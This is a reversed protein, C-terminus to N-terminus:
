EKHNGDRTAATPSAKTYPSATSACTAPTAHRTAARTACTSCAGASRFLSCFLVFNALFRCEDVLDLRTTLAKSQWQLINGSRKQVSFCSVFNAFFRRLVIIDLRTRQHFSASHNASQSGNYFIAAASRFISVGSLNAFFRHITYTCSIKGLGNIFDLKQSGNCFIAVTGPEIGADESGGHFRRTQLHLLLVLIYM